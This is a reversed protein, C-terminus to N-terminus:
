QAGPRPSREGGDHRVDEWLNACVPASLMLKGHQAAFALPSRVCCRRWFSELAGFVLGIAQNAEGKPAAIRPLAIGEIQVEKAEATPMRALDDEIDVVLRVIAAEAYPIKVIGYGRREILGALAAPASAVLRGSARELLTRDDAVLRAFQGRPEAAAVLIESLSSKGAGPAGRILVGAEGLLVCNAHISPGAIM